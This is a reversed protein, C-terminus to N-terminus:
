FNFQCRGKKLLSAANRHANLHTADNMLQDPKRGKAVLAAFIKSFVGMCSWRIFRDYITKPPSRAAPADRWSLGNRIVFIIASIIPRHDVRPVGHSLPFYRELGRMQAESFWILDRM